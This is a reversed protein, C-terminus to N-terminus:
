RQGAQDCCKSKDKASDKANIPSNEGIIVLNWHQSLGSRLQKTKSHSPIWFPLSPMDAPQKTLLIGRQREKYLGGEDNNYLM